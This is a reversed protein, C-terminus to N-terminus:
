CIRDMVKRGGRVGPGDLVLECGRVGHDSPSPVARAKGVGDPRGPSGEQDAVAVYILIGAMPANGTRSYIREKLAAAPYGAEADLQRIVLHALIHCLLFRPSM